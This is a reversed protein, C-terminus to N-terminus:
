RQVGFISLFHKHCVNQFTPLTTLSGDQQVEAVKHTAPALKHEQRWCMGCKEEKKHVIPM